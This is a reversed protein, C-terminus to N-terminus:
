GLSKRIDKMLLVLHLADTPSDEFEPVLRLYFARADLNEAHVLLARCGIQTGLEVTRALVDQMMGAGLGRREHAVHVGLRALLVVPQPYRGAGKAVRAPADAIRLEAMRWAYYAVVSPSGLETVVLVRATGMSHAQRAHHRLWDTQEASACVFDEVHHSPLLPVPAAYSSV